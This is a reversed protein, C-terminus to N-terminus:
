RRTAAARDGRLRGLRDRLQPQSWENAGEFLENFYRYYSATSEWSLGGIIGIRSETM